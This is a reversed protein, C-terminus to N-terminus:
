NGERQDDQHAIVFDYERHEALVMVVPSGYNGERLVSDLELYGMDDKEIWMEGLDHADLEYSDEKEMERDIKLALNIKRYLEDATLGEPLEWAKLKGNELVSGICVMPTYGSDRPITTDMFRAEPGLNTLVKNLCDGNNEVHYLNVCGVKITRIGDPRKPLM